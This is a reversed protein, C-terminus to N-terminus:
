RCPPLPQKSRGRLSPLHPPPPPYRTPLPPSRGPLIPPAMQPTQLFLWATRVESHLAPAAAAQAQSAQGPGSGHLHTPPLVAAAGEGEGAGKCPGGEPPSCPPNVFPHYHDPHPTQDQLYVFHTETGSYSSSSPRRWSKGGRPHWEFRQGRDKM